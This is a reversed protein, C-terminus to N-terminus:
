NSRRMRRAGRKRGGKQKRQWEWIGHDLDTASIGMTRATATLADVAFGTSVTKRELGLVDAVFRIIFRDPKIGPIGALMQVYHWTLDADKAAERLEQATHIRHAIM